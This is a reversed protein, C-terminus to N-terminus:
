TNKEEGTIFLHVPKKSQLMQAARDAGAIAALRHTDYRSYLATCTFSVSGGGERVGAQLMNCVETYFHPYTPLGYFILNHIGKITYRKYFHFRESFLMFQKEGTQFYHRARSVESRQSYESVSAFSVDEKKLYNRLRVFDFYSPVYIFTHSMVSDRYQPLIKDVFFQFRADQDMFSDSHFMQFVHPLQVLVQCISGVKPITKSCVQGRYNHCHKTLINTIQPEQIASFVLTQRYYSAWNNLNWMRVRSFDVGHSDLPQMNLHKLVHLLHEWNQMLFVDAQDVILLEISSLFDFDRKKDGDVGLVTRLGLPSAIIIDSSYFPSYLRMSRKMISVGIRFHDDVNGSFIAHYDDPRHLNPPRESSEEGFEEKFRKKNSADMKKGKPELLTIFTQVVRLAGDRFPVLILVKPRTLGQDRFDENVDKSEKLKANNRLVRTNAKLVHNLVHLCYASRVEKAEKLPSRNSFYVDRYTGMLGLLEKQLETVDTLAGGEPGFPQNLLRWNAELTKHILPVPASSPQGVAKFRELPCVCQLVGLKPWKVQTKITSGQSIRGVEEESLEIEQHKVFMDQEQDETNEEEEAPLNTELCFAAENKKDTFEGEMNEEIDGNTKEPHERDQSDDPTEGEEDDNDDDDGEEEEEKEEEGSEGEVEEGDNEDEDGDDEDESEEDESNDDAVQIMTSLLKQYASQQERDSDEESDPERHQPRNPLRLIETKEPRDVVNDHFPHQEGFEKLHKKQKKTLNTVEQKGRRRKGM